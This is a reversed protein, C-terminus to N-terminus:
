VARITSVKKLLLDYNSTGKIFHRVYDFNDVFLFCLFALLAVLILIIIIKFVSLSKFNWDEPNISWIFGLGGCISIFWIFFLPWNKLEM